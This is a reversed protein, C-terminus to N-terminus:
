LRRSTFEPSWLTTPPRAFFRAARMPIACSADADAKEANCHAPLEEDSPADPVQAWSGGSEVIGDIQKQWSANTTTSSDGAQFEAIEAPTLPQANEVEQGDASQRLFMLAIVALVGVILPLYRRNHAWAM